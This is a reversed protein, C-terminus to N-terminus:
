RARATKKKNWQIGNEDPETMEVDFIGEKTIMIVNPAASEGLVVRMGGQILKDIIERAPGKQWADPRGMTTGAIVDDKTTPSFVVKCKDPRMELPM